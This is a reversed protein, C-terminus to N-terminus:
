KTMAVVDIKAVQRHSMAKMYRVGHGGDVGIGDNCNAIQNGRIVLTPSSACAIANSVNAGVRSTNAGILNREITGNGISDCHVAAGSVNAPPAAEEIVLDIKCDVVKFNYPAPTEGVGGAIYVGDHASDQLNCGSVGQNTVGIFTILGNIITPSSEGGTNHSGNGNLGLDKVFLNAGSPAEEDYQVNAIMSVDLTPHGSVYGNMGERAALVSVAPGDGIVTTNDHLLIADSILFTGRPLYVVGGLGSEGIADAAAQIATTDPTSGDGIAGFDYVNFVGRQGNGLWADPAWTSDSPAKLFGLSGDANQVVAFADTGSVVRQWYPSSHDPQNLTANIARYMAGGVERDEFHLGGSETASYEVGPYAKTIVIDEDV